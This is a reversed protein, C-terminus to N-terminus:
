CPTAEAPPPRETLNSAAARRPFSPPPALRDISPALPPERGSSAERGTGRDSVQGPPSNCYRLGSLAIRAYSADVREKIEKKISVCQRFYWGV